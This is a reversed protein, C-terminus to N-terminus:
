ALKSRKASYLSRRGTPYCVPTSSAILSTEPQDVQSIATTSSYAPRTSMPEFAFPSHEVPARYASPVMLLTSRTSDRQMQSCSHEHQCAHPTPKPSTNGDGAKGAQRQSIYCNAYSQSDYGPDNGYEVPAVGTQKPMYPGTFSFSPSPIPIPTAYLPQYQQERFWRGSRIEHSGEPTSYLIQSHSSINSSTDRLETGGVPCRFNQELSLEPRVSIGQLRPDSMPLPLEDREVEDVKYYSVMHLSVGNFAVSMTKKVLGDVRFDYNEVLSGILSRESHQDAGSSVELLMDASTNITTTTPHNIPAIRDGGENWTSASCAHSEDPTTLRKRKIARRKDRRPSPKGLERYILFNELIRSPSWAVGDTWRKIGSAEEEYIFVSGSRALQSGKGHHPRRQVFHLKGILCAEFLILADKSRPIFGHFTPQQSQEAVEM